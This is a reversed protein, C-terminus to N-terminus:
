MPFVEPLVVWRIDEKPGILTGEYLNSGRIEDDAPHRRRRITVVTLPSRDNKDSPVTDDEGSREGERSQRGRMLITGDKTRVIDSARNEAMARARAEPDYKREGEKTKQDRCPPERNQM